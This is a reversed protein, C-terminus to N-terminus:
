KNDASTNLPVDCKMLEALENLRIPSALSFTWLTLFCLRSQTSLRIQFAASLTGCFHTNIRSSENKGPTIRPGPKLCPKKRKPTQLAHSVRGRPGAAARARRGLPREQREGTGAGPLGSVVTLM